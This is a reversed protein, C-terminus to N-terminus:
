AHPPLQITLFSSMEDPRNSRQIVESLYLWQNFMIQNQVADDREQRQTNEMCQKRIQEALDPNPPIEIIKRIWAEFPWHSRAAAESPSNQILETLLNRVEPHYIYEIEVVFPNFFLAFVFATTARGFQNTQAYCAAQMSRLYSDEKVEAVSRDILGVCETYRKIKFYCYAPHLGPKLYDLDNSKLKPILIRCFFKELAQNEESLDESQLKPKLEDWADVIAPIKEFKIASVTFLEEKWFRVKSEWGPIELRLREVSRIISPLEEWRGHEIARFYDGLILKPGDFLSLQEM